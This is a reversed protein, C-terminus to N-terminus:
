FNGGTQVEKRKFALHRQASMKSPKPMSIVKHMASTVMLNITWMVTHVTRMYHEPSLYRTDLKECTTLLQNFKSAVPLIEPSNVDTLQVFSQDGHLEMLRGKLKKWVKVNMCTDYTNVVLDHKFGKKVKYPNLFWSVVTNRPAREKSAYTPIISNLADERSVDRELNYQSIFFMWSYLREANNLVAKWFGYERALEASGLKNVWIIAEICEDDFPLVDPLVERMVEGVSLGSIPPPNVPRVVPSDVPSPLGPPAPLVPRPPRPPPAGPRQPREPPPMVEPAPKIEGIPLFNRTTDFEFVYQGEPDYAGFREEDWDAKEEEIDEEDECIQPLFHPTSQIPEPSAAPTVPGLLDLRRQLRDVVIVENEAEENNSPLFPQEVPRTAHIVATVVDEEMEDEYRAYLEDFADQAGQLRADGDEISSLIHDRSTLCEKKGPHFHAWGENETYCEAGLTCPYMDKVDCPRCAKKGIMKNAIRLEAGKKAKTVKHFHLNKTCPTRECQLVPGDGAVDSSFAPGSTPKKKVTKPVDRLKFREHMTRERRKTQNEYYRSSDYPGYLTGKGDLHAKRRHNVAAPSWYSKHGDVQYHGVSHERRFMEVIQDDTPFWQGQGMHALARSFTVLFSMKALPRSIFFGKQGEFREICRTFVKEKRPSFRLTGRGMYPPADKVKHRVAVRHGQYGTEERFRRVLPSDEDSEYEYFEDDDPGLGDSMVEWSDDYGHYEAMQASRFGAASNGALRGIGAKNYKSKTM